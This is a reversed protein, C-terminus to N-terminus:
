SRRSGAAQRSFISSARLLGSRAQWARARPRTADAIALLGIMEGSASHVPAAMAALIGCERLTRAELDTPLELAGADAIVVDEGSRLWRMWGKLEGDGVRRLVEVWRETASWCLGAAKWEHLRIGHERLRLIQVGSVGLAQGIAAAVADLDPASDGLLLPSTRSIAAEFRQREQERCEQAKRASIDVIMGRIGCVISGRTVLDSQIIAPFTSGDARLMEYESDEPVQGCLRLRLNAQARERDCPAVMQQVMVCLSLDDETYGFIECARHNAFIVRGTQDADFVAHTM